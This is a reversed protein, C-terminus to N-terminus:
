DFETVTLVDYQESYYDFAEKINQFESFDWNNGSVNFMLGVPTQEFKQQFINKGACAGIMLYKAM